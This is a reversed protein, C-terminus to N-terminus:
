LLISKTIQTFSELVEIEDPLEAFALGSLENLYISALESWVQETNNFLPIDKISVDQWGKPDAFMEKDHALIAEFEEKFKPSNIYEKCEDNQLLYHFDYFHRIKSSIGEIGHHSFRVLSVLKEILTQRKDLVNVTFAPLDYQQIADAQGTERLYQAIYSEIKLSVFPYPNAFSNIEVILSNQALNSKGVISNYEYVSKRFRSGKSTVGNKVIETLDSTISKEVTRIITKISNGSQEETHCLALDVDESFRSILGYAKSLSTGGKFVTLDAYKSKSLKQLILTIWYDKEIFVPRINYKQSTLMILQLFAKEDSHLIM